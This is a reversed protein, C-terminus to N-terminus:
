KNKRIASLDREFGPLIAKIFANEIAKGLIQFVSSNPNSVPGSIEAVTAARDEKKNTFLDGLGEVIGEYLKKFFPKGKDQKPDYVNVDKFLPKVYGNIYGNKIRMQSYVSMSGGAVDFKGYTRWVDNLATMQTEEIRINLDLDPGVKEPRYSASASAAGSGMFRGTLTARAPGQEFHNSLNTVALNAGTVFVRYPPSKAENVIGLNSNKVHFQDLRMVLGPENSAKQVARTVKKASETARPASHIYDFRVRDITVDEVHAVKITPAYEVRGHSSLFGNHLSMNARQLMPRFYDLPVQDLTFLTNFGMHPEALFNAHGDVEGRGTGFIVGEAHVPSPYVRDASRINRINNARFFVHSLKLPRTPDQDIYTFSGDNIQFLNIKLPYVAFAAEQWGRKHVPIEDNYEQRLQPLNLYIQPQDFKFDSVLKLKLLESWQVSAKLRPVMAVLPDPHADQRITVNRLTVSFGFINFDLDQIHATYGTLSANIKKEMARRMPEDVFFSAIIVVLALVLLIGLLQLTHKSFHFGAHGVKGLFTSHKRHIHKRPTDRPTERPEPSPASM